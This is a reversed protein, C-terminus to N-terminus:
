IPATGVVTKHFFLQAAGWKVIGASLTPIKPINEFSVDCKAAIDSFMKSYIPRKYIGLKRIRNNIMQGAKFFDPAHIEDTGGRETLFSNFTDLGRISTLVESAKDSGEIAPRRMDAKLKEFIGDVTSKLETPPMTALKSARDSAFWARMPLASQGVTVGPKVLRRLLSGKTMAIIEALLSASDVVADECIETLSKMKNPNKLVCMSTGSILEWPSKSAWFTGYQAGRVRGFVRTSKIRGPFEIGGFAWPFGIPVGAKSAAIWQPWFRSMQWLWKPVQAHTRAAALVASSPASAWNCTGKSAGFPGVINAIPIVPIVSSDNFPLETYLGYDSFFDKTKSVKSGRRELLKTFWESELPLLWTRADDGTTQINGWQNREVTEEYCWLTMLPLGPWSTPEGMMAGKETICDCSNQAVLCVFAMADLVSKADGKLYRIPDNPFSDEILIKSKDYGLGSHKFVFPDNHASARFVPLIPQINARGRITDPVTFDIAMRNATELAVESLEFVPQLHENDPLGIVQNINQPGVFAPTGVNWRALVAKLGPKLNKFPALDQYHKRTSPQVYPQYDPLKEWHRETIVARPGFLWPVLNSIRHFYGDAGLGYPLCRNILRVYIARTWEFPHNDTATTLDLSRQQADQHFRKIDNRLPDGGTISPRVRPDVVLFQDMLARLWHQIVVVCTLGATPLRTKLGKEAALLLLAPAPGIKSMAECAILAGVLLATWRSAIEAPVRWDFPKLLELGMSVHDLKIGPFLGPLLNDDKFIHWSGIQILDRVGRLKGGQQRNYEVCSATGITFSNLTLKEPSFRDFWSDLWGSPDHDGSFEPPPETMNIVYDLVKWTELSLPAPLARALMSFQLLDERSLGKLPWFLPHFNGNGNFAQCRCQHAMDKLAEALSEPDTVLWDRLRQFDLKLAVISCSMRLADWTTEMFSYKRLRQKFIKDITADNKAFHERVGQALCQQWHQNDFTIRLFEGQTIYRGQHKVIFNFMTPLLNVVCHPVGGCLRKFLGYDANTWGLSNLMGSYRFEEPPFQHNARFIESVRKRVLSPLYMWRGKTIVAEKHPDYYWFKELPTGRFRTGDYTLNYFVAVEVPLQGFLRGGYRDNLKRSM